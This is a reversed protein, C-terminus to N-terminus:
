LYHILDIIGIILAMGYFIVLIKVLPIFSKELYTKSAKIYYIGLLIVGILIPIMILDEIM